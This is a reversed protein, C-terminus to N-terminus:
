KDTLMGELRSITPSASFDTKKGKEVPLRSIERCRREILGTEEFADLIIHLRCLNIKHMLKAFIYDEGVKEKAPILRYVAAYDDREPIMVPIVRKDPINGNRFRLYEKEANLLKTQNVGSRRIDKVDLTVSVNGNFKNIGPVAMINVTCGEEYPFSGFATDFMPFSIENRGFGITVKTYKGNSLPSTRRIEAGSICFVPEPNREGFPELESKMRSVAEVTLEEPRIAKVAKIKPEFEMDAAERRLRQSFEPIKEEPISFGGAGVHGGFKEM